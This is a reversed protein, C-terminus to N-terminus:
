AFWFDLVEPASYPGSCPFPPANALSVETDVWVVYTPTSCSTDYARLKYFQGNPAFNNIIPMVGAEYVRKFYSLPRAINAIRIDQINANPEQKNPSATHTIAGVKWFGFGNVGDTYSLSAAAVTNLQTSGSYYIMQAGNLYARIFAGDYTMGIHSWVGLPIPYDTVTLGVQTTSNLAIFAGWDGGGNGTLASINIASFPTTFSSTLTSDRYEKGVLQQTNSANYSRLNIWFSLTIPPTILINRAGAAYNRTAATGAPFDSTGPVWLSNGSNLGAGTRIVTGSVTLDTTTDNPSLVGINRYPGSTETLPWVIQDFIDPAIRAM